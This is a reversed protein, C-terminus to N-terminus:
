NFSVLFVNELFVFILQCDTLLSSDDSLKASLNFMMNPISSKGPFGSIDNKKTQNKVNSAYLLNLNVDMFNLLIIDPTIDEFRPHM